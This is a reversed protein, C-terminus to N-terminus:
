TLVLDFSKESRKRMEGGLLGLWNINWSLVSILFKFQVCLYILRLFGPFFSTGCTWKKRESSSTECRVKEQWKSRIQQQSHVFPSPLTWSIKEGEKSCHLEKKNIKKNIENQVSNLKQRTTKAIAPQPHQKWITKYRNLNRLGSALMTALCTSTGNSPRGAGFSEGLLAAQQGVKPLM